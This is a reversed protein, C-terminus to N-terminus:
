GPPIGADGDTGAASQARSLLDTVPETYEYGPIVGQVYTGEVFNTLAAADDLGRGPDIDDFAFEVTVTGGDGNSDGDGGGGGEARTVTPSLDHDGRTLGGVDEIRRRFTDYWGDAVIGAVGGDTVGDITPVRVTVSFDVHGDPRERTRVGADFPTATMRIRDGDPEFADHSRVARRLRDPRDSM